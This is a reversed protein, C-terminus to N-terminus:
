LQSISHLFSVIYLSFFFIPFAEGLFYCETSGSPPTPAFPSSPHLHSLRNSLSLLVPLPQLSPLVRASQLGQFLSTRGASDPAHPLLSLHPPLTLCLCSKGALVLSQVQTWSCHSGFSPLNPSVWGLESHSSHPSLILSTCLPLANLLRKRDRQRLLSISLFPDTLPSYSTTQPWVCDSDGHTGALLVSQLSVNIHLIGEGLLSRGFDNM